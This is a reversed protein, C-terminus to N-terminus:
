IFKAACVPISDSPQCDVKNDVEIGINNINNHNPTEYRAITVAVGSGGRIEQLNQIVGKGFTKEGVLTGRGLDKFCGALVEAASATNKNVLVFLKTDLDPLHTDASPVGDPLTMQARPKGDKGVEYVVIKGPPLFLNAVQIGGQLLGGGNNRMDVVIYDLDDGKEISEMAKVVEDRTQTSFSKIGIMGVKKGNITDKSWEVGKLKFAKRMVSINITRKKAGSENSSSRSLELTAKTGDKGRILAAVEEASLGLAPTGDVNLIIDGPLVQKDTEKDAKLASAPSGEAINNVQVSGDELLALELGVGTVDGTASNMLASYQAPPLYRTYRDGLKGLMNKLSEYVEDDSNYQHKVADMRMKLWDQKNFTRDLFNEDVARWTESVLRNRDTWKSDAASAVEPCICAAVACSTSILAVVAGNVVRKKVDQFLHMAATDAAGFLLANQSSRVKLCHVPAMMMCLGLGLAVLRLLLASESSTCKM